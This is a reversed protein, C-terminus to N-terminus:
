KAYYQSIQHPDKDSIGVVHVLAGTPVRESGTLMITPVKTGNLLEVVAHTTTKLEASSHEPTSPEFTSEVHIETVIGSGQDTALPVTLKGCDPCVDRPPFIKTECHPCQEGILSYRQEKLRWHRPVEM